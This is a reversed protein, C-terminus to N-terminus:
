ITRYVFVGEKENGPIPPVFPYSGTALILFDYNLTDGNEFLLEQKERSIEDVRTSLRLEIDNESYWELSKLSLEELTTGDFYASLRVRDYAVQPEEGIAIIEFVDTGGLDVLKELFKCGVMGNGVVVVCPKASLEPM